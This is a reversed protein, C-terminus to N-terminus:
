WFREVGYRDFLRENSVLALDEVLSQAVLMRDFPDKHIEPLAGARQGHAIKVPMEVFGERALCGPIDNAVDKAKPLKGVRFKTAIEWATAASVFVLAQRGAIAARARSSLRFDGDLWWLLVHTDLLLRM